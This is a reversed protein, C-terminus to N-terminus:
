ANDLTITDQEQYDKIEVATDVTDKSSDQTEHLDCKTVVLLKLIMNNMAKHSKLLPRLNVKELQGKAHVKKLNNELNNWLDAELRRLHGIETFIDLTSRFTVDM